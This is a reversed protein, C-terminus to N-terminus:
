AEVDSQQMIMQAPGKRVLDYFHTILDDKEIRKEDEIWHKLMAIGAGSVYSMFYSFPMSGITDDERKYRGLHNYICDYLKESMTSVSGLSFMIHYFHVDQDIHEILTTMIQKLTGETFYAPGQDCINEVHLRIDSIKEDEMTSLLQYKDEYHAYFTGRHVDASDAIQQVTISEFTDKELLALLATQIATQTKRTRRDKKLRLSAM